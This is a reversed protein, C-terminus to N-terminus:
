PAVDQACNQIVAGNSLRCSQTAEDYLAVTGDAKTSFCYAFFTAAGVQQDTGSNRGELTFSKIREQSYLTYAFMAADAAIRDPYDVGAAAGENMALDTFGSEVDLVIEFVDCNRGVLRQAADETRIPHDYLYIADRLTMTQPTSQALSPASAIALLSAALLLVPKKM